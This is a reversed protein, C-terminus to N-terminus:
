LDGGMLRFIAAAGGGFAAWPLTKVLFAGFGMAGARRNESAELAAVRGELDEVRKPVGSNVAVDKALHDFKMCLNNVTHVLEGVKGRLEGLMVGMAASDDTM